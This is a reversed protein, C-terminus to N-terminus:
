FTASSVPPLIRQSLCVFSIERTCLAEIVATVAKLLLKLIYTNKKYLSKKKEENSTKKLLEGSIAKQTARM